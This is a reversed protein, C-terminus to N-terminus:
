CPLPIVPIRKIELSPFVPPFCSFSIWPYPLLYTWLITGGYKANENKRCEPPYMKWISRCCIASIFSAHWFAPHSFTFAICFASFCPFSWDSIPVSTTCTRNRTSLFGTWASSLWYFFHCIIWLCSRDTRRSFATQALIFFAAHLAPLIRFVRGTCGTIFFDAELCSKLYQMDRFLGNWKWMPFFIPFWYMRACLDTTPSPFSIPEAELDPSTRFCAEQQM